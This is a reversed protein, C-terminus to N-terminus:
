EIKRRLDQSRVTARPFGASLLSARNGSLDTLIVDSNSLLGGHGRAPLMTGRLGHGDPGRQIALGPQDPGGEPSRDM